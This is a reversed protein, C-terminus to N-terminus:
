GALRKGLIQDEDLILYEVQDVLVEVGDYKGFLIHDGEAYNGDVESVRIVEGENPREQHQDPILIGNVETLADEKKVLYESKNPVFNPGKQRKM